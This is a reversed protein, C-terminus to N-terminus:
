MWVAQHVVDRIRRLTREGVRNLRLLESNEAEAVNRVTTFGGERLIEIKRPTLGYPYALSQQLVRVDKEFISLTEAGASSIDPLEIEELSSGSVHIEVADRGPELWKQMLEATIRSGQVKELLNCLNLAFMPGRGGSKMARSAERKSIFGAYELIEFLKSLRQVVERHVVVSPIEKPGAVEFLKEGLTRTPAVFPEYVGLKPAVEELLPWYYNMALWLFCSNLEPLGITGLGAISNCAFVIARMNGLVARGVLRAFQDNNLGRTFRDQARLPPFRKSIVDSFFSGFDPLREDRIIDIVTADNFVDFRIGFKTVGPYISAKCSVSSTSLMRFIDFFETLPKERGVHAADDFLLVIRKQLKATLEGMREQLKGVESIKGIHIEHKAERLAEQVKGSLLESFHAEYQQGESRLLPLYRLSMYVSFVSDAYQIQMRHHAELLLASKGSGRGGRILVPGHAILKRIVKDDHASFAHLASFQDPDCEEAALILSGEGEEIEDIDAVSRVRLEGFCELLTQRV